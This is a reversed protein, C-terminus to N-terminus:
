GNKNYSNIMEKIKRIEEPDVDSIPKKLEELQLYYDKVDLPLDNVTFDLANTFLHIGTLLETNLSNLEWMKTGLTM